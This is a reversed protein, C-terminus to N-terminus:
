YIISRSVRYWKSLISIEQLRCDALSVGFSAQISPKLVQIIKKLVMKIGNALYNKSNSNCM